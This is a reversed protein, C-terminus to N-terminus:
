ESSGGEDRAGSSHVMSTSSRGRLGGRRTRSRDRRAQWLSVLWRAVFLGVAVAVAQPWGSASCDVEQGFRNWCRPPMTDQGAAPYLFLLVGIGGLTAM